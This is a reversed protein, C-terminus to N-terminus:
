DRRRWSRVISKWDRSLFAFGIITLAWFFGEGFRDHDLDATITEVLSSLVMFPFVRDWWINNKPILVAAILVIVAIILQLNHM